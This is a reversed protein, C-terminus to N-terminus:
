QPVKRRPMPFPLGNAGPVGPVGPMGPPGQNFRGPFMRGPQPPPQGGAQSAAPAAAAATSTFSDNTVTLTVRVGDNMVDVSDQASGIKLLELKSDPSKEGEALSYYIPGDKKEKPQSVFLVKSKNGINVFGTIKVVPLEVKPKEPEPPPPPPNLHFINREVIVAYPNSTDDASDKAPAPEVALDSPLAASLVGPMTASAIGILFLLSGLPGKM